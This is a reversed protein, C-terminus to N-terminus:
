RAGRRPKAPKPEPPWSFGKDLYHEVQDAPLESETNGNPDILVAKHPSSVYGYTKIYTDLEKQNRFKAM